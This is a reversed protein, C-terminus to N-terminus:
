PRESKIFKWSGNEFKLISAEKNMPDGNHDFSIVGTAGRFGKTRSLADRIKTKRVSGAQRVANALLLISDYTLPIRMNEIDDIGYKEKFMKKLHRNPKFPADPHWHTSYYAGFLSDGAYEAVQNGWADGGLFITQVGMKAAQNILLGSDRSYGPVFVVDPKLVRVRTLLEEFDTASGKYAGNLLVEGGQKAFFAVFYQALSISYNENVNTLVVAQRAGLDTYAFGAMVHGQFSDIFCARFIYDGVRTIEPNTSSPTIMPIKAMQFLYAMPLSHSSRYAGVAAIVDLDIAAQAAAKAGLPTSKNDIVVLEVKHGVFGGKSNIEDVALQAAQIAPTNEQAAVGTKSLILAVKVPESAEIAGAFVMYICFFLVLSYKCKSFGKKIRM